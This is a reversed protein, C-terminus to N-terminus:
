RLCARRRRRAGGLGIAAVAFLALSAPEPVEAAIGWRDISGADGAESDVVTLTWDGFVDHGIFAALAEEPRFAGTYPAYAYGEAISIAAADDFVTGTYNAGGSGGQRNSLLVTVGGHSLSLVLDADWAHTIDVLANVDLVRGHSSVNLTSAVTCTDCIAVPTDASTATIVGAQAGAATGVALAAALTLCLFKFTM